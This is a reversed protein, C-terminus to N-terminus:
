RLGLREISTKRYISMMKKNKWKNGIDEICNMIELGKRVSSDMGNNFAVYLGCDSFLTMYTVWM